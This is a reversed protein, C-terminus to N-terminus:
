RPRAAASAPRAPRTARCSPLRRQPTHSPLALPPCTDDRRFQVGRSALAVRSEVCVACVIAKGETMGDTGEERARRKLDALQRRKERGKARRRDVARAYREAKRERRRASAGSPIGGAKTVLWRRTLTWTTGAAAVAAFCAAEMDGLSSALAPVLLARRTRTGM